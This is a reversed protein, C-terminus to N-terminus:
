APTLTISSPWNDCGSGATFLNFTTASLCNFSTTNYVTTGGGGGPVVFSITANTSTTVLLAINGNVGCAAVACGSCLWSCSSTWDLDFTTNLIACNSCAGGDTIGTLGSVRYTAPAGDPCNTCGTISTDTCCGCAALGDQIAQSNFTQTVMDYQRLHFRNSQVM